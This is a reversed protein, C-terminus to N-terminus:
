NKKKFIGANNGSSAKYTEVTIRYGEKWDMKPRYNLLKQAREISFHYNHLMQQIRYMTLPPSTEVGLGEYLGGLLKAGAKATKPAIHISPPKEGLLKAVYELLEKWTVKEGGTVNFVNGRAKPCTLAAEIARLLDDIYVPCTLTDGTGIYGMLGREIANFIPYSTTTDGPGYVNGPRIVSTAIAGDNAKLVCDEAEKKTRQYDSVYGYYPGEESTNVHDGFGHVAISSIYTFTEVGKNRAVNLLKRTAGVNIRTFDEPDGWDSTLGAAHVIKSISNVCSHLSREEVLDCRVLVAGRDGLEKLTQPLEKRRYLAVVPYGKELFYRSLHSGIFGSAGTVLVRENKKM